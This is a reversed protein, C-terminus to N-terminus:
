TQNAEEGSVFGDHYLSEIKFRGDRVHSGSHRSKCFHDKSFFSYHNQFLLIHAIM